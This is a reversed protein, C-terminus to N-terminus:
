SLKFCCKEFVAVLPYHGTVITKVKDSGKLYYSCHDFARGIGTAEAEISAMAEWSRKAAVSFCRIIHVVGEKTLQILIYGCGAVKSTDVLLETYLNPDYSIFREDTLVEKLQTFEEQCEATWVFATSKSLLSRMVVKAPAM